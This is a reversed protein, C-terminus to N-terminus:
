LVFDERQKREQKLRDLHEKIQKARAEPIEEPWAYVAATSIDLLRAIERPKLRKFAYSKKM